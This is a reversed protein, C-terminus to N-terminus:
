NKNETLIWKENWKYLPFNKSELITGDDLVLLSANRTDQVMFNGTEQSGVILFFKSLAEAEYLNDAIVTATLVDTEAPAQIRPDILHHLWHDGLKWRRYDRGSTAIAGSALMVLSLNSSPDFPNTIGIPWPNGNLLHGSIAIDGGADVLVPSFNKLHLMTKQAAWGKAVGGLDLRVGKPVKISHTSSDLEINELTVKQSITAQLWPKPDNLMEEFSVKYGSAELAELIVPTVIGHTQKETDLALTLVEWLVDSVHNWVGTNRNLECLDSTSRFRSLISEWKDFQHAIEMGLQPWPDTTSDMALFIRSGMAKFEYTFM